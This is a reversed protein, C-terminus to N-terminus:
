QPAGRRGRVAAMMAGVSEYRFEPQSHAALLVIERWAAPVKGHFCRSVLVGLAFVDTRASLEGGDFQEPAAYGPTGVGVARGDVVSLGDGIRRSGDMAALLGFDALVARGDGPRRLINTPKIDRHVWGKAHLAAVAEGVELVYRAVAEDGEPLPYEELRELAMWLRGETEGAGFFAPFGEGPNGALFRAERLFRKRPAEGGRHLVKLVARLGDGRRVACYVEASGGRGLFGKVTWEGAQMGEPFLRRERPLEEALAERCGELLAEVEDAGEAEVADMRDMEGMEREVYRVGLCVEGKEGCQIAGRGGAAEGIRGM